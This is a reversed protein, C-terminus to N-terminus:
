NEKNSYNTGNLRVKSKIRTKKIFERVKSYDEGITIVNDDIAYIIDNSNMYHKIISLDFDNEIFIPRTM